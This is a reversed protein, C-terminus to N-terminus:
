SRSEKICNNVFNKAYDSGEFYLHGYSALTNYEIMGDLHNKIGEGIKLEYAFKSDSSVSELKSYHFEHGQFSQKKNSLVNSIAIKGKTYNLKMKKTMKTEADFIGVMKHLKNGYDMSKTLYMLGGCEAYVPFNKESFQKIKKRMNHNKELDKGLIEPFGGGIYLGDCNPLSKDNIPSFFIIKAGERKLGELNDRYYFNFSRDLAVAITTKPKKYM